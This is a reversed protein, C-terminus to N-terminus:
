RNKYMREYYARYAGSTINQVWTAHQLYWRITTELGKEFSMQPTWGLENRLKSADIAYRFDHGLRDRVLVILERSEGVTRGLLRDTIDCISEMMTRNSKECNGGINYTTGPLAWRMITDIALVHDEVYLWDRVNSGDGYLPLSVKNVINNICLPILKEPFQYPGYNNSCCSLVVPMGYTLGYARVLHDASAKSASYPSRPAYPTTELFTGETGLAGYVEDTSVQYFLRDGWAKDKQQWAQRACELLTLTGMINTQAFTLPAEISRDVHSEAALHIVVDIPYQAFLEELFKKDCVNGQCFRYNPEKEIDELNALNGAYTLADGNVICCEPYQKVLYRVVHSGIFGAGGTVLIARPTRPSDRKVSQKKGLPTSSKEAMNM